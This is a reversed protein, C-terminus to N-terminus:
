DAGGLVFGGLASSIRERDILESETRRSFDNELPVEKRYQHWGYFNGRYGLGELLFHGAPLEARLRGIDEWDAASFPRAVHELPSMHGNGVLGDHLKVDDAIFKDVIGDRVRKKIGAVTAAPLDEPEANRSGAELAIAAETEAAALNDVELHKEQNLYSLRASRAVAVKKMTELDYDRYREASRDVYPLHYEDEDLRRPVSAEIAELAEQAFARLDPQAHESIRLAFFNHWDTSTILVTHHMAFEMLRNVIQKHVSFPLAEAAAAGAAAQLMDQLEASKIAAPGGSLVFAALAMRDVCDQWVEEALEREEPSLLEAASMGPKNKGWEVPLYPSELIRKIQKATPIARSSASNRSFMRHTNLEALVYRAMTGELSILRRPEETLPDVYYSDAVVRAEIRNYQLKESGAM